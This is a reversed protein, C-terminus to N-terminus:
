YLEAILAKVSAVDIDADLDTWDPGEETDVHSILYADGFIALPGGFHARLRPNPAYLVTASPNYEREEEIGNESILMVARPYNVFESQFMGFRDALGQCSVVEIMEFGFKRNLAPYENPTEDELLEVNGDPAIHIARM